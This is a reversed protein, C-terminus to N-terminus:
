RGGEWIDALNDLELWVSDAADHSGSARMIETCRRLHEACQRMGQRVGLQRVDITPNATEFAAIAAEAMEVWMYCRGHGDDANAAAVVDFADDVSWGQVRAIARAVANVKDKM